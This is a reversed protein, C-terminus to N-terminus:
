QGTVRWGIDPRRRIFTDFGVVACQSECTQGNDSYVENNMVFFWNDGPVVEGTAKVYFEIKM